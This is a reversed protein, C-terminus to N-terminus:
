PRRGPALAPQLPSNPLHPTLLRQLSRVQNEVTKLVEVQKAPLAGYVGEELLQLYGIIVNIPTKLEHSAVSGFEAKLKDLECLQSAMDQFSRALRGFEHQKTTDYRLKYDLQGDAVAQMGAELAFVPKLISRMLWVAIVAAIILALVM